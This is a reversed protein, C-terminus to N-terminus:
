CCLDFVASFLYILLYIGNEPREVEICVCSCVCLHLCAHICICMYADLYMYVCIYMYLSNHM